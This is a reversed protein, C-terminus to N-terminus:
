AVTKLAGPNALFPLLTKPDESAMGILEEVRPCGGHIVSIGHENPVSKQSIQFDKLSIPEYGEIHLNGDKEEVKISM